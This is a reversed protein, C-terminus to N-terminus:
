SLYAPAVYKGYIQRLKNAYNPDTAYGSSGLANFAELPNKASMVPTYRSSGSMLSAHQRFSDDMTNNTAFGQKMSVPSGNVYETTAYDVTGGTGPFSQSAKIGFYNNHKAALDSPKGTLGSELIAQSIAVKQMTPNDPYASQASAMLRPLMEKFSPSPRSPQMVGVDGMGYRNQPINPQMQPPMIPHPEGTPPPANEWTLPKEPAPNLKGKLKEMGKLFDGMSMGGKNAEQQNVAAAQDYLAKQQAQQAMVKQLLGAAAMEYPNAGENKRNPSRNLLGAQSTLIM